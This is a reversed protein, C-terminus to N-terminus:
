RNERNMDWPNAQFLHDGRMDLPRDDTEGNFVAFKAGLVGFLSLFYYIVDFIVLRGGQGDTGLPKSYGQEGAITM